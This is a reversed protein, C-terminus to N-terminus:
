SLDEELRNALAGLFAQKRPGFKYLRGPRVEEWDKWVKIISFPDLGQYGYGRLACGCPEMGVYFQKKAPIDYFDLDEPGCPPQGGLTGHALMAHEILAEWFSKIPFRRFREGSTALFDELTLNTIVPVEEDDELFVTTAVSPSDPQFRPYHTWTVTAGLSELDSVIRGVRSMAEDRTLGEITLDQVRFGFEATGKLDEAM